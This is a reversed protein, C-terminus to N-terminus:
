TSAPRCPTTTRLLVHHHAALRPPCEHHQLHVVHLPPAKCSIAFVGCSIVAPRHSFLRINALWLTTTSLNSNHTPDASSLGIRSYSGVCKYFMNQSGCKGTSMTDRYLVHGDHATGGFIPTFISQWARTPFFQILKILVFEIFPCRHRELFYWQGRSAM